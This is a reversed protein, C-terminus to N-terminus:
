YNFCSFVIYYSNFSYVLSIIYCLIFICAKNDASKAKTKEVKLKGEAAITKEKEKNLKKAALQIDHKRRMCSRWGMNYQGDHVSGGAASGVCIETTMTNALLKSAEGKM